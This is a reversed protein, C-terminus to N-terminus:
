IIDFFYLLNKLLKGSDALVMIEKKSMWLFQAVEDTTANNINIEGDYEFLWIDVIDQFQERLKTCIVKGKESDLVVGVEEHVERLAASLSDEGKLASGGVCEWMLPDKERSASRQSILYYGKNNKIWVHVVLHYYGNPIVEGRIQSLSTINRDKDYLDWIEKM